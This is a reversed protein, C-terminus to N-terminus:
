VSPSHISHGEVLIEIEQELREPRDAYEIQLQEVKIALASLKCCEILEPSNM